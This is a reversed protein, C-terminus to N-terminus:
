RGLPHLDDILRRKVLKKKMHKWTRGKRFVATQCSHAGWKSQCVVGEIRHNLRRQGLFEHVAAACGDYTYYDDLIVMGGTVVQDYLHELCTRVSSYWDADIRLIAIAGLRERHVPLADAFWGKVFETYATLGLREAIGQVEELSAFCNDLYAPSATNRGYALAAPGDIEQPPPLGEFSDIGWVKRDTVGALRLLEAMLFCAGGRWVGCEVFSGPIDEILVARVQHALEVLSEPLVQTFPGIRELVATIEEASRRSGERQGKYLDETYPGM